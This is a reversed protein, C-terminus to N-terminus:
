FKWSVKGYYSAGNFGFPSVSSYPFIGVNDSGSYAVGGVVRSRINESPYINFLNNVGLSASLQKSFRYTVDLDTIWKASFTQIVQQNGAASGPIAPEFGVNYGPTLAAVQAADEGVLWRALAVALGGKGADLLLTALAAGKNGTRLVNTAGINGSGINRIDGLGAVRTLLLGFPISGLLYGGLAVLALTGVAPGVLDQM